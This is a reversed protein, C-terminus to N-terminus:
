EVGGRIQETFDGDCDVYENVEREKGIDEAGTGEM